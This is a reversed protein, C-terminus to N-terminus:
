RQWSYTALYFSTSSELEGKSGSVLGALDKGVDKRLFSLNRQCQAYPVCQPRTSLAVHTLWHLAALLALQQGASASFDSMTIIGDLKVTSCTPNM